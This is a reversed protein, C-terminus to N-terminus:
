ENDRASACRRGGDFPLAVSAGGLGAVQSCDTDPHCPLAGAKLAAREQNIRLGNCKTESILGRGKGLDDSRLSDARPHLEGREFREASEVFAGSRTTLLSATIVCHRM